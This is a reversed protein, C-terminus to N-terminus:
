DSMIVQMELDYTEDAFTHEPPYKFRLQEVTWTIQYNAVYAESAYFVGMNGDTANVRYTYNTFGYDGEALTSNQWATLFSVTDFMSWPLAGVDSISGWPSQQSSTTRLGCDGMDWDEGHNDYNWSPDDNATAKVKGTELATVSLSLCSFLLSVLTTAVLSM